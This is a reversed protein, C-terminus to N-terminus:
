KQHCTMYKTPNTSHYSLSGPLQLHEQQIQHNACPHRCAHIPLEEPIILKFPLRHSKGSKLTNTDEFYDYIAMDMSLFPKDDRNAKFTITVDEINPEQHPIFVIEGDITDHTKFTPSDFSSNVVFEVNSLQM